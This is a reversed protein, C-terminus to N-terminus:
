ESVQYAMGIYQSSNGAPFSNSSSPSGGNGPFNLSNSKAFVPFVRWVSTGVHVSAGPDLDEMHVLRVGAPAGVAQFRQSTGIRKGIYLNIPTLIQAGSYPSKGAGMPGSNISDSYGGLVCSNGISAFAADFASTSTPAYFTRWPTPNDPHDIHMGGGSSADWVSKMSFPYHSLSADDGRTASRYTIAGLVAQGSGTVVEGGQYDTIKEVYGLYFHRYLNFGYEIVGAIWSRGSDAPGGELSGFLHLSTPQAVTVASGTNGGTFNFKPSEAIAINAGTVGNVSLRVQERRSAASGVLSSSVVFEKAGLYTPHRVVVPGSGSTVFGLADAFTRVLAPVESVSSIASVSYAM